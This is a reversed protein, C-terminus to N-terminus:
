ELGITGCKSPSKRAPSGVFALALRLLLPWLDDRAVGKIVRDAHAAQSLQQLVSPASLRRCANEVLGSRAQWVRLARLAASRSAGNRTQEFISALLRLERTIVWLVVTADIGAAKLNALIDTIRAANGALLADGFEFVDFRALDAAADRIQNFSLAGRPYLLALKQLEGHAALLNGEVQGALFDLADQSASQGQAQLRAALWRPLMERTITNATVVAGCTELAKYWKTNQGQRDLKPLTIITVTNSPLKAVYDQLVGGGELGPKGGPMRIEVIRAAGFLSLNASVQRLNQWDFRGDTELVERESYGRGRAAVRIADVAENVLLLEDGQVVYLPRLEGQLERPLHDSGLRM